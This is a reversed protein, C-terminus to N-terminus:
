ASINKLDTQYTAKFQMMGIGLTTDADHITFDVSVPVLNILMGDLTADSMIAQHVSAIIDDMSADPIDARVLVSAHFILEWEARAVTPNTAKDNLPEVIVAPFEEKALAQVRSRYVTFSPSGGSVGSLATM